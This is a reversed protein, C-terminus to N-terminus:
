NWYFPIWAKAEKHFLEKIKGASSANTLLQYCGWPVGKVFGEGKALM